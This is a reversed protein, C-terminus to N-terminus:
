VVDVCGVAFDSCGRSVTFLEEGGGEEEVSSGLASSGGGGDAM